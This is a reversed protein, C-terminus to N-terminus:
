NYLNNEKIYDYISKPLLSSVDENNKLMERIKTSSIDTANFSEILHIRANHYKNKYYTIKENLEKISYPPRVSVAFSTLSLLLEFDKWREFQFVIDAGGIFTFDDDYIEKLKKLTDVTYSYGKQSIEIDSVLFNNEKASLAAMQLRHNNGINNKKNKLPNDSTPILIVRDLNLEKKACRALEIHGNHIPNFSGGLIGTKM